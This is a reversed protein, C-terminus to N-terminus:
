LEFRKFKKHGKIEIIKIFDDSDKKYVAVTFNCVSDTRINEGNKNSYVNIHDGYTIFDTNSAGNHELYLNLGAAADNSFIYFLNGGSNDKIYMNLDKVQGDEDYTINKEFVNENNFYVRVFNGDLSVKPMLEEKARQFPTSAVGDHYFQVHYSNVDKNTIEIGVECSSFSKWEHLNHNDASIGPTIVLGTNVEPLSVKVYLETNKKNFVKFTNLNEGFKKKDSNIIETYEEGFFSNEDKNGLSKALNQFDDQGMNKIKEYVDQAIISSNQRKDIEKNAKLSFYINNFVAISIIGVISLALIIELFTSGKKRKKLLWKM